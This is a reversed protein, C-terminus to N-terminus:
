LSALSEIVAHPKLQPSAHEADSRTAVGTLTLITKMGVGNAGLIDSELNDGILVCRQPNVGLRRCLENFFRPEPKGCYVPKKNAAYAFMATFAGVGFEMGRPSPYVRDACIAVLEAAGRLQVLAARLRDETAHVNVPVGCIVADCPSHDDKVWTVKGELMEDVGSTSINLVRPGQPFRQLVYDCAASAATYIHAPDVEVGMRKLRSVLQHPSTTSNTLCAYPQGIKQLRLILEVAGPLAHDEHYVTGDLDLLVAQYQSLDLVSRHDSGQSM